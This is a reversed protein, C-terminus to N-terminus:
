INRKQGATVREWEVLLEVDKHPKNNILCLGGVQLYTSQTSGVNIMMNLEYHNYQKPQTYKLNCTLTAMRFYMSDRALCISGASKTFELSVLNATDRIM